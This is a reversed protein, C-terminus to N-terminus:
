ESTWIKLEEWPPVEYTEAEQDYHYRCVFVAGDGGTPLRRAEATGHGWDCRIETDWNQDPFEIRAYNVCVDIDDDKFKACLFHFRCGSPEGPRYLCHKCTSCLDDDTIITM